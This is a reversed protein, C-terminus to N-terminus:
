LLQCGDLAALRIITFACIPKEQKREAPVILKLHLTVVNVAGDAAVCKLQLAKLRVDPAGRGSTHRITSIHQRAIVPGGMRGFNM